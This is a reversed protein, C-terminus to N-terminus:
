NYQWFGEPLLEWINMCLTWYHGTISDKLRAPVMLHLWLHGLLAINHNNLSCYIEFILHSICFKWYSMSITNWNLQMRRWKLFRHRSCFLNFFFIALIKIDLDVVNHNYIINTWQMINISRAKVTPVIVFAFSLALLM